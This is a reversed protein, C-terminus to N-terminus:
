SRTKVFPDFEEFTGPDILLNIRERATLKGKQHQKEAAQPDLNKTKSKKEELQKLKDEISM